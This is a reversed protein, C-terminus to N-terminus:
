FLNLEYSIKQSLTLFIHGKLVPSQKVSTAADGHAPKVTYSNFGLCMTYLFLPPM